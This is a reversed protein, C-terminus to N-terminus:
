ESKKSKKWLRKASFLHHGSVAQIGQPEGKMLLRMALRFSPQRLMKRKTARQALMRKLKTTTTAANVRSVPLASCSVTGRNRSVIMSRPPLPDLSLIATTLKRPTMLEDSGPLTPSEITSSM